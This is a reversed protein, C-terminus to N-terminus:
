GRDDPAVLATERYGYRIGPVCRQHARASGFLRRRHDCLRRAEQSRYHAVVVRGRGVTGLAAHGAQEQADSPARGRHHLEELDAQWHRCGAGDSRRPVQLMRIEPRPRHGGRVLFGACVAPGRLAGSCRHDYRRSAGGRAGEVAARRHRCGRMPKRASTASIHWGSRAWRGSASPAACRGTPKSRGTSAAPRPMWRISKARTAAPSSADAWWPPSHSNGQGRRPLWIGVEAEIKPGPGRAPGGHGGTAHPSQVTWAGATGILAPSRSKSLRRPNPAHAKSPRKRPASPSAPSSCPWPDLNRPRSRKARNPWRAM